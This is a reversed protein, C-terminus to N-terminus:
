FGVRIMKQGMTLDNGLYFFHIIKLSKAEASNCSNMLFEGSHHPRSWCLAVGGGRGWRTDSCLARPTNEVDCIHM